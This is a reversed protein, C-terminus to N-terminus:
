ESHFYNSWIMNARLDNCKDKRDGIKFIRREGRGRWEVWDMENRRTEGERYQRVLHIQSTQSIKETPIAEALGRPDRM